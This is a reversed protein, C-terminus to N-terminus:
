HIFFLLAASVLIGLLMGSLVDLIYHQRTYLTSLAVLIGWILILSGVLLGGAMYGAAVAPVSLGVHMSPFNDYPRAYRQFIYMLWGSLGKRDPNEVRQVQSPIVVHVLHSLLTIVVVCDLLWFFQSRQDLIFFPLLILLYTSFYILAWSPLFPIKRDLPIAVDLRRRPDVHRWNILFFLIGWGSILLALIQLRYPLSLHDM